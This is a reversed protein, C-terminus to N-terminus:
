RARAATPSPSSHDRLMAAVANDFDRRVQEPPRAMGSEMWDRLIAVFGAAIFTSRTARQAPTLSPALAVLRNDVLRRLRREGEAFMEPRHKSRSIAAAYDGAQRVHNLIGEIPLAQCTAEPKQADRMAHQELMSAFSRCLYDEISAYHAYFTSRGIGAASALEGVRISDIPRRQGLGIIARAIQNRTRRARQDIAQFKM